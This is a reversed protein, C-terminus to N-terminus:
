NTESISIYLSYYSKECAQISYKSKVNQQCVEFQAHYEPDGLILSHLAASASNELPPYSLMAPYDALLERVGGVAHGIVPVGLGIAELLNLPLGEHDSLILVADLQWLIGYVNQQFGLLHVISALGAEEINKKLESYLPGDGVIYYEALEGKSALHEAIKLFIDHRKVPVLRGVIGVAFPRGSRRGLRQSNEAQAEAMFGLNAFDIGNAIVKVRSNDFGENILATQLESSVAVNCQLFHKNILYELCNSLKAKIAKPGSHENGGHLTRVAKARLRLALFAAILNEKKRHGHIVFHDQIGQEKWERVFRYSAVLLSFFTNNAEELLLLPVGLKALEQHLQGRNLIVVSVRMNPRLMQQKVLQYVLNEAGGWLDGSVVHVVSVVPTKM